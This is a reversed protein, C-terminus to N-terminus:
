AGWGPTDQHTRSPIFSTSYLPLFILWPHQIQGCCPTQSGHLPPHQYMLEDESLPSQSRIYLPGVLASLYLALSSSPSLEDTMPRERWSDEQKLPCPCLHTLRVEFWPNSRMSCLFIKRCCSPLCCLSQAATLVVLFTQSHCLNSLPLGPFISESETGSVGLSEKRPQSLWCQPFPQFLGSHRPFTVDNTYHPLVCLKSCWDRELHSASALKGSCGHHHLM